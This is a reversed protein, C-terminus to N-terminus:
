LSVEGGLVFNRGPANFGSMHERYNTDLLNTISFRINFFENLKFGSRLNFTIWGARLVGKPFACIRIIKSYCTNQKTTFKSNIIGYM